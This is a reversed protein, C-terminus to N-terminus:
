EKDSDKDLESNEDYLPRTFYCNPDSNCQAFAAMETVNIDIVEFSWKLEKKM